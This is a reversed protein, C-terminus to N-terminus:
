KILIMKKTESYDGTSSGVQRATLRYYYIGSAFNSANWEAEYTGPSLYENVLTTIENGLIDYVTLQVSVGRGDRPKPVDVGRSLPIEFRIKTSPNFPNPYNQSLKFNEPIWNSLKKIGIIGGSTTHVIKGGDGSIWGTISNIFFVKNYSANIPSVQEIWNNGGNSTFFIKSFSLSCMWASNNDSCFVSSIYCSPNMLIRSWNNGGNISKLIIISSLATDGAVLLNSESSCSIGGIRVNKTDYIKQWNLGNNTTKFIMSSDLGMDDWIHGYMYGYNAGYFSFYIRAIGDVSSTWNLGGNTTRLISGLSAFGGGGAGIAIGTNSNFFHIDKLVIYNSLGFILTVWNTGGNTTKLIVQFYQPYYKGGAAFGTNENIFYISYLSCDNNNIQQNWNAGGNTTKIIRGDLGCAWGTNPNVFYISYLDETVGTYQEYWGTQSNISSNLSLLIFLLLYLKTFSM